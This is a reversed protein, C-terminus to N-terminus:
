AESQTKARHSSELRVSQRPLRLQGGVEDCHVFLFSISRTKSQSSSKIVSKVDLANYLGRGLIAVLGSM